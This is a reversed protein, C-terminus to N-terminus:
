YQYHSEPTAFQSLYAVRFVLKDVRKQVPAKLNGNSLRNKPDSVIAEAKCLVDSYTQKKM